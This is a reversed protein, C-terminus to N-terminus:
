RRSKEFGSFGCEFMQNGDDDEIDYGRQSIGIIKVITGIEFYGACSSHIETTRVMDGVGFNNRKIYAM